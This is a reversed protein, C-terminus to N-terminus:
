TAYNLLIAFQNCCNLWHTGRWGGMRKFLVRAAMLEEPHFNAHSIVSNISYKRERGGYRRGEPLDEPYSGRDYHWHQGYAWGPKDTIRTVVCLSLRGSESVSWEVSSLHCEDFWPPFTICIECAQLEKRQVRDMNPLNRRTSTTTTVGYPPVLQPASIPLKVPVRDNKKSHSTSKDCVWRSYRRSHTSLAWDFLPSQVTNRRSCNGTWLQTLNPSLQQRFAYTIREHHGTYAHHGWPIVRALISDNTM